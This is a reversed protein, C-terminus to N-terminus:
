KEHKRTFDRVQYPAQFNIAGCIKTWPLKDAVINDVYAQCILEFLRLVSLMQMENLMPLSRFMHSFIKWTWPSILNQTKLNAPSTQPAKALFATQSDRIICSLYKRLAFLTRSIANRFCLRTKNRM